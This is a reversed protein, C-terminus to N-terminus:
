VIKAVIKAAFRSGFHDYFNCLKKKKCVCVCVTRSVFFFVGEEFSTYIFLFFVVGLRDYM